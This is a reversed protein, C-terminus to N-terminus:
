GNVCPLLGNGNVVLVEGEAWRRAHLQTMVILEGEKAAQHIISLFSAKMDVYM